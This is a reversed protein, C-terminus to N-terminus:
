CPLHVGVQIFNDPSCVVVSTAMCCNAPPPLSHAFCFMFFSIIVSSNKAPFLVKSDNKDLM